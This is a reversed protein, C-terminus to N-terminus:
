LNRGEFYGATIFHVTAAQTNTGFAARLDTYNALYQAPDFRHAARNEFYGTQLYHNTGLDPNPNAAVQSHFANILDEHSAIYELGNFTVTRGQARGYEIYHRVGADLDTGYSTVLDGYSALYALGDFTVGRGEFRGAQIYHAAGADTNAGFVNMLDQHSAIYELGSFTETRGEFRGTQIYHAAGADGNAGFVNMLDPHSALYELGNFTTYRGEFMGATAFHQYGLSKNPGFAGGLDAHSAIYNLGNVSALDVSANPDRGEAWGSRLYQTLPDIRAAAVDPNHELYYAPDFRSDDDSISAFAVTTGLQAGVPDFLLLQLSEGSEPRLDDIMNVAVTKAREGPAFALTQVGLGQYDSGAVGSGDVTRFNVSVLSTSPRDLTVTFYTRGAKEDVVTDAVSIVPTGPPVDNDLITATALSTGVRANSGSPLSFELQFSETGEATGDDYLAVRATKVTEGPAFTLTEYYYVRAFDSSSRASGDATDYGVSVAQTSPADLRVAFEVYGDSENAITDAVSVVPKTSAPQDSPGIFARARNDPMLAGSVGSLVLDFYEGDERIDDNTLNVTVTKTREGAGFTLTRPTLPQYDVGPSASGFGTRYTMGVPSTSARDLTVTFYARGAREDVVTDAISLTPLGPGLVDDDLITATALSTGLRADSGSPVTLELHFSEALEPTADDALAVRATKVTEGPAFTLTQYHTVRSFDGGLYTYFNEASAERTYYGVSTTSASSADLRFVFEAFGASETVVVDAVSVVPIAM